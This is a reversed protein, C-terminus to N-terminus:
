INQCCHDPSSSCLTHSIHVVWSSSVKYPLEETPLQLPSCDPADSFSQSGNSCGVAFM